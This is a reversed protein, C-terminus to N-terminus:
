NGTAKALGPFSGPPLMAFDTVMAESLMYRTGDDREQWRTQRQLFPNAVQYEFVGGFILSPRGLYESDVGDLGRAYEREIKTFNSEVGRRLESGTLPGTSWTEESEAHTWEGQIGTALVTGDVRSERGYFSNVMGSADTSEWAERVIRGPYGDCVVQPRSSSSPNCSLSSAGGVNFIEIQMYMVHGADLLRIIEAQTTAADMGSLDFQSDLNPVELIAKKIPTAFDPLSGPTLMAFEIVRTESRTERTGDENEIWESHRQILPNAVQYESEGDNFNVDPRGAYEDAVSFIVSPRNLYESKVPTGGNASKLEIQTFANNVDKVLERGEKQGASWTEGSAVDTWEGQNGIALVTGAPTAIRGHYAIVTGSSDTSEWWEEIVSEPYGECVIQPMYGFLPVCFITSSFIGGMAFLETRTYMVHGDSILRIIEAETKAADMGSFDFRGDARVLDPTETETAVNGSSGCAISAVFMMALGACLVALRPSVRFRPGSILLMQINGGYEDSKV